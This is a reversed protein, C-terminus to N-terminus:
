NAGSKTWEFNREATSLAADVEQKRACSM